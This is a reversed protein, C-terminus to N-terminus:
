LALGSLVRQVVVDHLRQARDLLQPANLVPFASVQSLLEITLERSLDKYPILGLLNWKPQVTFLKHRVGLYHIVAKNM